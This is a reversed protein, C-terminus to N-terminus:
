AKLESPLAPKEDPDVLVELVATRPSHLTARMAAAVENPHACRFGDAGCAKAFAAFDIPALERAYTPNGLAKQEFLVEALSNNKLIIIKIPLQYKVATVLEGMLQTFGGDGVVAVCQRNPFALQSAIAFPLGPAMTALMGTGTLKQQEKLENIRAAFHINAGCDLLIV